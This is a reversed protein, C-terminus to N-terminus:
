HAMYWMGVVDRQEFYNPTMRWGRSTCDGRPTNHVIVTDPLAEKMESVSARSLYTSAVWLRDLWVMQKLVEAGTFGRRKYGNSIDCPTESLNLDELKTLNMLPWLDETVSMFLELVRLNTCTGISSLDSVYCECLLLFELNPMYEVFSVDSVGYHGLDVVRMDTCYKLNALGSRNVNKLKNKVPMFYTADTRITTNCVSVSWVFQVDRHRKNLADMEANSIGCGCMDVKTLNYFYPLFAEVDAPNEIKIGSLDIFESTSSVKVGLMDFDWVFTIGPYAERLKMLEDNAPLTGKLTVTKLEPLLALNELLENVDPDLLTLTDVTNYYERGGLSVNYSVACDPYRQALLNLVDYDTCDDAYVAQLNPLYELVELDAESLHDIRIGVSENDVFGDQFPVSWHIRCGPLSAQLDDHQAITLGTDRLDLEQLATLEKVKELQTIPKGSLDLSTASRLYEEKDIVIYTAHYETYRQYAVYGGFAIGAVLIIAALITVIAKYKKFFEKMISMDEM